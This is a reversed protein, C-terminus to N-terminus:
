KHLTHPTSFVLAAPGEPGGPVAGGGMVRGSCQTLRRREQVRMEAGLARGRGGDVMGGAPLSRAGLSVSRMRRHSAGESPWACLQSSSTSSARSNENHSYLCHTWERTVPCTAAGCRRQWSFPRPSAGKGPDRHQHASVRGPAPRAESLRAWQHQVPSGPAKPLDVRRTLPPPRHQEVGEAGRGESEPTRTGHKEYSGSYQEGVDCFLGMPPDSWRSWPSSVLGHKERENKGYCGCGGGEEPVVVTNETIGEPDRGPSRNDEQEPSTHPLGRFAM